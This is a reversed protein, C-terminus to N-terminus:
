LQVLNWSADDIIIITSLIKNLFCFLFLGAENIFPARTNQAYERLIEPSGRDSGRPMKSTVIM